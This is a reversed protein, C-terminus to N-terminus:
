CELILAPSLCIPFGVYKGEASYIGCVHAFFGDKKQNGREVGDRFLVGQGSDSCVRVRAGPILASGYCIM